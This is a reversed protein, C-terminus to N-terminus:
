EGTFPFRVSALAGGGPLTALEFRYDDGHLRELRARTNALGIGSTEKASDPLGPGDDKVELRLSGNERWARVEVRGGGARRAV